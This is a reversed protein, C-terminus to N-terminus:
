SPLIRFGLREAARRIGEDLSLLALGPLTGRAVLASALHIADLTRIPEGPFSQRARDAVEPSIRLV